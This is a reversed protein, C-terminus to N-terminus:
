IDSSLDELMLNVEKKKELTNSIKIKKQQFNKFFDKKELNRGIKPSIIM